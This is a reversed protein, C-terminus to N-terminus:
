RQQASLFLGMERFGDQEFSRRPVALGQVLRAPLARPSKLCLVKFAEVELGMEAAAQDVNVPSDYFNRMELFETALKAGTWGTTKLMLEEYPATYARVRKEWGLYFAEVRDRKEKDKIKLDVGAKLMEEVLNRPLIFGNAPAHCVVCSGPNRVRADMKSDSSDKAFRNDAIELRDGRANTLFAALGGNPLFALLEGADFTIDGFPLNPAEEAFDRKGSTERVDFTKMAAGTPIPVTLVLRNHLSVISGKGPQDQGGEVVAGYDLDIKQDKSFKRVLDIGFARDWDTENKPFDVFQFKGKNEVEEEYEETIQYKHGPPYKNGASDVGGNPGVVKDVKRTKKVKQKGGTVPFFRDKAFLLDYYSPSRDSEVTERFLWPAWCMMEVPFKNQATLKDSVPTGAARRLFEATTPVDKALKVADLQAGKLEQLYKTGGSGVGQEERCYTEREVVTQWAASNWGYSSLYIYQLRGKTGPIDQPVAWGQRFSLQNIWWAMVKKFDPLDKEPVGNWSIFRIDHWQDYPVALCLYAAAWAAHEDLGNWPVQRPPLGLPTEEKWAVALDSGPPAAPIVAVVFM